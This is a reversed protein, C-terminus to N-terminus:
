FYEGGAEEQWRRNAEIMTHAWNITSISFELQMLFRNFLNGTSCIYIFLCQTSFAPFIQSICLLSASFIFFVYKERGNMSKLNSNATFNIQYKTFLTVAFNSVFYEINQRTVCSITCSLSDKSSLLFQFKSKFKSVSRMVRKRPGAATVRWEERIKAKSGPNSWWSGWM